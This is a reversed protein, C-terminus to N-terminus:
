LVLAAFAGAVALAGGALSNAANSYYAPAPKSPTGTGWAAATTNSAPWPTAAKWSATVTVTCTETYTDCASSASPWSAVDTKTHTAKVTTTSESPWASDGGTPWSSDGTPAAASASESPWGQASKGAAALGFLLTVAAFRM